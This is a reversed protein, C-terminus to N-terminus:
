IWRLGVSWVGAAPRWRWRRWRRTSVRYGSGNSPQSSALNLNHLNRLDLLHLNLDLFPLYYLRRVYACLPNLDPFPLNLDLIPLHSLRRLYACLPNWDPFPLNLDLILLYSLRARRYLPTLDLLLFPHTNLSFLSPHWTLRYVPLRDLDFHLLTRV